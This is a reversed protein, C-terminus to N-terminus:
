DDRRTWCVGGGAGSPHLQSLELTVFPFSHKKKTMKDRHLAEQFIIDKRQFANIDLTVFGFLCIHSDTWFLVLGM